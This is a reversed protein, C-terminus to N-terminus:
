KIESTVIVLKVVKGAAVVPDATLTGLALKVVKCTAVAPEAMLARLVLQVWVLMITKAAVEGDTVSPAVMTIVTSVAVLLGKRVFSPIAFDANGVALEVM